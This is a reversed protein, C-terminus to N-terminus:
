GDTMAIFDGHWSHYWVQGTTANVSLMGTIKGHALTHLTYYGPFQEAEGPTWGTHHDDLWQRGIVRADAASVRPKAGGSVPHMGYETNWMMAPGYEFWVAGDAPDVLVETAHRGGTTNLEAYFNRSFQMVEGVRLGLRDAFDQARARATAPSTVPQGNGALGCPSAGMMAPGMWTGDDGGYGRDSTMGWGSPGYGQCSGYGASSMRSMGYAAHSASLSGAGDTQTAAWVGTGAGAMAIVAAVVAIRRRNDTM